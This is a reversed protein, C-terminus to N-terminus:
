PVTCTSEDIFSVMESKHHEQNRTYTYTITSVSRISCLLVLLYSEVSHEILTTVARNSYRSRTCVLLKYASFAVAGPAQLCRIYRCCKYAGTCVWCWPTALTNPSKYQVIDSFDLWFDMLYLMRLWTCFLNDKNRDM